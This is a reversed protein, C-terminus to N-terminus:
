GALASRAHVGVALGQGPGPIGAPGGEKADGPWIRASANRAPQIAQPHVAQGVGAGGQGIPGDDERGVMDCPPVRQNQQHEVFGETSHAPRHHVGPTNAGHREQAPEAGQWQVSAVGVASTLAQLGAGLQQIPGAARHPDKGLASLTRRMQTWQVELATQADQMVVVRHVHDHHAEVIYEQFPIARGRQHAERCRNRARDDTPRHGGGLSREQVSQVHDVGRNPRRCVPAPGAAVRM